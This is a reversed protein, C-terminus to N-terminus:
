PDRSQGIALGGICAAPPTLLAPMRGRAVVSVQAAPGDSRRCARAPAMTSTRGHASCPASVWRRSSNAASTSVRSDGRSGPKQRRAGVSRARATPADGHVAHADIRGAIALREHVGYRVVAQLLQCQAERAVLMGVRVSESACRTPLPLSAPMSTSDSKPWGGFRAQCAFFTLCISQSSQRSESRWAILM